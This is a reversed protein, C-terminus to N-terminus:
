RNPKESQLDAYLVTVVCKKAGTPAGEVSIEGTSVVQGPPIAQNFQYTKATLPRDSSGYYTLRLGAAAYSISGQNRVVVEQRTMSPEGDRRTLQLSSRVIELDKPAMVRTATPKAVRVIEAVPGSSRAERHRSKIILMALVAGLVMTLGWFLARRFM